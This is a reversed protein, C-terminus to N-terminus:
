NKIFSTKSFLILELEGNNVITNNDIRFIRLILVEFLRTMEINFYILRIFVVEVMILRM